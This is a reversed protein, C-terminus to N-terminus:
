AKYKPTYSVRTLLLTLIIIETKCYALCRLSEVCFDIVVSGYADFVWFKCHM